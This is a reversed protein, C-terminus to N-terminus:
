ARAPARRRWRVTRPWKRWEAAPFTIAGALVVGIATLVTSTGLLFATLEAATAASGTVPGFTAVLVGAGAGVAVPSFPVLRGSGQAVIVLLVAAATAPLHFATLFCAMAALRFLRSALQWPAIRRAYLGPKGLPACGRRLGTLLRRLATAERAHPEARRRRYRVAVVAATVLAAAGAVAWWLAPVAATLPSRIGVALAVALLLLGGVFEGAAEAVLTGALTAGGTDPLRRTLLGIRLADGVRATVVGGAGAGAIWAAIADRRRLRSDHETAARLIAWWGRGRTVQNALHLAVGLALWDLRTGAVAHALGAVLDGMWVVLDNVPVEM